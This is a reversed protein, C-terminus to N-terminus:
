RMMRRQIMSKITEAFNSSEDRIERGTYYIFIDELSPQKITLSKIKLGNNYAMQILEPVKESGNEITINMKTAKREKMREIMKAPPKIDSSIIPSEKKSKGDFIKNKDQMVKHENIKDDKKDFGRGKMMRKYMMPFMPPEFTKPNLVKISTIGPFSKILSKYKMLDKSNEFELTIVDGILQKKLNEVTDLAIIKGHDIICIRDSLTEAEEMYHTTIIITINYKKNLRKIHDWISRRTQPDLGITPEDLFLCRPYHLLGRAIELRRKMGGSFNKVFEKERDKLKVIELMKDIREKATKKDLGYMTAHLELNERATLDLDLSMEQFVIGINQRVKDPDKKIDYGAIIATGSTPFLLTSLMNLTTTKGAGNPGLLAFIEGERVEFSIGKVAEVKGAKTEFTKTLNKVKIIYNDKNNGDSNSRNLDM